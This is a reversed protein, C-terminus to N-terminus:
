HRARDAVPKAYQRLRERQRVLKPNGDWCQCRRAWEHPGHDGDRGCDASVTTWPKPTGHGCYVTEWGGDSCRDCYYRWFRTAAPLVTGDPLTGLPVPAPLPVERGTEPVDEPAPRAADCDRRLEAPRPFDERTIIAQTVGARLAELPVNRLGEWHTQYSSPPFKLGAMRDMQETFEGLTM